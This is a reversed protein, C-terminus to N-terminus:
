TVNRFTCTVASPSVCGPNPVVGSDSRMGIFLSETLYSEGDVTEYEFLHNIPLKLDLRAYAPIYGTSDAGFVQLPVFKDFLIKRTKPIVNRLSPANLDHTWDGSVLSESGICVIIRVTNYPDDAIGNVQGGIFTLHMDCSEVFIRQGTRTVETTGTDVDLLGEVIWAASGVSAFTASL